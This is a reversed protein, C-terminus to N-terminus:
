CKEGIHSTEPDNKKFNIKSGDPHKSICLEGVLVEHNLIPTAPVPETQRNFLCGPNSLKLHEEM